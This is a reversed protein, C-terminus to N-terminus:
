NNKAGQNIWAYIKATNTADPAAGLPMVPSKKGNMWLILLSNEPDNVKFYKGILLSNYASSTTLVPTKGGAGHCGSTACSKEFIPLIDKSFSMTTTISAGASKVVTTTKVCGVLVAVLLVISAILIGIKKQFM